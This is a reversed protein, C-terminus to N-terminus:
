QEVTIAALLPAAPTGNDRFVIQTLKVPRLRVALISLHWPDGQLGLQTLSASPAMAWDDVTAQSVLPVTQRKGDAYGLVYDGIAGTKPDGPDGPSWGTVQGLFFARTGQLNVPIEVSHPFDSSTESGQLVVFAKQDNAAPDIVEFPVGQADVRGTALGTFLYKGPNLTGFPATFPDVNAAPRLDLPVCRSADVSAELPWGLVTTFQPRTQRQAKLYRAVTSAYDRREYPGRAIRLNVYARGPALVVEHDRVAAISGTRATAGLIRISPPTHFVVQRLSADSPANVWV